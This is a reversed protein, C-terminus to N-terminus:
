ASPLATPSPPAPLANTLAYLGGVFAAPVQALAVLLAVLVVAVLTKM